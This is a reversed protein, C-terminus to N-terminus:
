DCDKRRGYIRFRYRSILRYIIDGLFDPVIGMVMSYFRYQGGLDKLIIRMASSKTLTRDNRLYIVTAPMEPLGHSRLVEKGEGSQLPVLRFIKKRDRRMVWQAWGNCLNCCGDFIIIRKM